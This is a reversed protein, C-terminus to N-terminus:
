IPAESQREALLQPATDPFLVRKQLSYAQFIASGSGREPCSTADPAKDRSGESANRLARCLEAARSGVTVPDPSVSAGARATAFSIAAKAVGCTGTSGSIRLAAEM